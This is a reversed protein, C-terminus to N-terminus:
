PITPFIYSCATTDNAQFTSGTNLGGISQCTISGRMYAKIIANKGGPTYSYWAGSFNKGSCNMSQTSPNPLNTAYPALTTKLPSADNARGSGDCGSATDTINGCFAVDGLCPYNTAPTPYLGNESSYLSVAKAYSSVSNFTKTNEARAQIGNYAVVTIAALIAIVVIVILLEVITFGKQKIAM